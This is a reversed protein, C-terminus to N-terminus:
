RRRVQFRQPEVMPLRGAGGRWGPPPSTEYPTMQEFARAEAEIFAEGEFGVRDVPHLGALKRALRRAVQPAAVSTGSIAVRSGSRTGAALIGGLHRSTDSLAMANPDRMTKSAAASYLAPRGDRYRYGGAVVLRPATAIASLSGRRKVTSRDNDLDQFDGKEDFRDYKADDFYSQQGRPRYGLPPTDRQIWAELREGPPVKARFAVLWAGPPAPTRDTGCPDTPALALVIRQRRLDFAGRVFKTCHLWGVVGRALPTGVECLVQADAPDLVVKLRRGSLPDTVELEPESAKVPFWLELYNPSKDAPPIRWELALELTEQQQSGASVSAHGRALHRNGAPMVIEVVADEGHPVGLGVLEDRHHQKLAHFVREVFHRGNHPGGAVAFSFNIVVPVAVQLEVSIARARALIFQVAAMLFLGLLAGSTEETVITPIQVAILRQNDTIEDQPDDPDSGASLDLVHTGHTAQRGLPCLGFRSFDVLGLARLLTEEDDGTAAIAANIEERTWERGFPVIGDTRVLGDQHWAFEIRTTGDPRRFREHVFNIADDIAAVVVTKDADAGDPRHWHPEKDEPAVAPVSRARLPARLILSEVRKERVDPRNEFAQIASTLEAAKDAGLIGFTLITEVEEKPAFTLSELGAFEFGVPRRPRVRGTASVVVAIYDFDGPDEKAEQASFEFDLGHSLFWRSYPDLSKPVGNGPDSRWEFRGSM